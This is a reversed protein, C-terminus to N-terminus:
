HVTKQKYGYINFNHWYNYDYMHIIYVNICITSGTFAMSRKALM